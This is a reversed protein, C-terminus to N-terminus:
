LKIRGSLNEMARAAAAITQLDATGALAITSAAIKISKITSIPLLTVGNEEFDMIGGTANIAAIMQMCAQKEQGPAHKSPFERYEPPRGDLFEVSIKLSSEM